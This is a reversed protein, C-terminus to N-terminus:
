NYRNEEEISCALRFFDCAKHYQAFLDRRDEKYDPLAFKVIDMIPEEPFDEHEVVKKITNNM